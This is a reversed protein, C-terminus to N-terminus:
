NFIIKLMTKSKAITEEWEKEAISAQTIGGGVYITAKGNKLQMCRLNVFLQSNKSIMGYAKHEQNRRSVSRDKREKFNLEGLYGTYYGRQYGENELIFQKSDKKPLGCIAPTPHLAHIVPAIGNGIVTGSIATRLHWLNGARVSETDSVKLHSVANCLADSIYSTVLAQEELEKTGWQPVKGESFEKTGALSMTTLRRNKIQTLVEPTAGLWLGIKPHYWVYCFAQPYHHLLAEFLDIASKDCPIEIKRSLVVKKFDGKAIHAVAKQVLDMHKRKAQLTEELGYSNSSEKTKRNEYKEKFVEDPHLLIPPQKDDFPAFVFGTEDFTDVNHVDSNQQVMLTVEDAGPQRYLVFPLEKAFQVRAKQLVQPFM